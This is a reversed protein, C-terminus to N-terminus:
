PISLSVKVKLQYENLSVDLLKSYMDDIQLIIVIRRVRIKCVFTLIGIGFRGSRGQTESMSGSLQYPHPGIASSFRVPRSASWKDGGVTLIVFSYFQVEVGGM